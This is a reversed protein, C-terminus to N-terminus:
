PCLPYWSPPCTPLFSQLDLIALFCLPHPQSPLFYDLPINPVAWFPPIKPPAHCGPLVSPPIPIRNTVGRSIPPRKVPPFEWSSRSDRISATEQNPFHKPVFEPAMVASTPLSSLRSSEQVLTVDYVTESTGDSRSLTCLAPATVSKKVSNQRAPIIESSMVVSAPIIEKPSDHSVLLEPSAETAIASLDLRGSIVEMVLAPASGSSSVHSAPETETTIVLSSSLGLITETAKAPLFSHKSLTELALVPNARQESTAEMAMVPLTLHEPIVEMALDLVTETLAVSSILPDVKSLVPRMFLESLATESEKLVPKAPPTPPKSTPELSYVEPVVSYMVLQTPDEQVVQNAVEQSLSEQVESSPAEQYLGELVLPNSSERIQDEQVVPIPVMLILDEPVVSSPPVQSPGEQALPDSVEPNLGEQVLTSPVESILANSQM